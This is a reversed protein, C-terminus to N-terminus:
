FTFREVRDLWTSFLENSLSQTMGALTKIYVGKFREWEPLKCDVVDESSLVTHPDMERLAAFWSRAVAPFGAAAALLLMAIRFEGSVTEDGRFSNWEESRLGARVLRYTNLLRTTARPTQILDSYDKLANREWPQLPVSGILTEDPPQKGGIPDPDTEDPGPPTITTVPTAPRPNGTTVNTIKGTEVSSKKRKGPSPTPKEGDVSHTPLETLKDIMNGFGTSTMQPLHFPVHFIKELYDLPTAPRGEKGSESDSDLLGKFEVRLSQRLCRQDVGVVVAFLPYALLLHVAQLVEVVKEPQCRDLDDVFLVIRDISSALERLKKDPMKDEMKRLAEADAFLNSLEQFDRRALSVLGLHGRYDASHAREEIFRSLRRQPALENAEKELQKERRKADALREQASKEVAEAAVLQKRANRVDDTNKAQDHAAEARKQWDELTKIKNNAERLIRLIGAVLVALSPLGGLAAKLAISVDKLKDVYKVALASALAILLVAILWGIRWARGESRTIARWVARARNSLLHAEKVAARLEGLTKVETDVGLLKILRRREEDSTMEPLLSRLNDTLGTIVSEADARRQQADELESKLKDVNARARAVEEEARATAGGAERLLDRLKQLQDPKPALHSFAGEFIENVLSAWLNADLYHWANFYISVIQPCWHGIANPSRKKESEALAKLHQDILTMFHSKGAGWNGFLGVALPLRTERLAILEALRRAHADVNLYDLARDVGGVRRYDATYGAPGSVFSPREDTGPASPKPGTRRPHWDDLEPAWTGRAEDATVGLVKDLVSEVDSKRHKALWDRYMRRVAELNVKLTGLETAGKPDFEGTRPGLLCALLHRTSFNRKRGADQSVEVSHVLIAGFGGSFTSDLGQSTNILGVEVDEPLPKPLYINRMDVEDIKKEGAHQWWVAKALAAESKGGTLPATLLYGLMVGMSNLPEKFWRALVAGVRLAERDNQNMGRGIATDSFLQELTMEGSRLRTTEDRPSGKTTATKESGDGPKDITRSSLDPATENHDRVISFLRDTEKEDLLFNTGVHAKAIQTNSFIADSYFVDSLIPRAFRVEYIVDVSYEDGSEQYPETVLSGWGYVGRITADSSAMWFFVIDGKKMSEVSSTAQWSERKKPQLQSRLDYRDLRSQFIFVNM